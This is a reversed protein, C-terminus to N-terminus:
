RAKDKFASAQAVVDDCRPRQSCLWPSAHIHILSPRLQDAHGDSQFSEHRRERQVPQELLSRIRVLTVNM